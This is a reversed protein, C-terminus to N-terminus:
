IGINCNEILNEGSDLAGTRYVLHLFLAMRSSIDRGDKTKAEAVLDGEQAVVELIKHLLGDKSADAMDEFLQNEDEFKLLEEPFQLYDEAFSQDSIRWGSEILGQIEDTQGSSYNEASPKTSGGVPAVSPEPRTKDTTDAVMEVFPQPSAPNVIEYKRRTKSDVYVNPTGDYEYGSAKLLRVIKDNDLVVLYGKKALNNIEIFSGSTMTLIESIDSIGNVGEIAKELDEVEESKTKGNKGFLENYETYDPEPDANPYFTKGYRAGDLLRGEHNFDDSYEAFTALIEFLNIDVIGTNVKGPIRLPGYLITEDEGDKTEKVRSLQGNEQEVFFFGEGDEGVAKGLRANVYIGEFKGYGDRLRQHLATM